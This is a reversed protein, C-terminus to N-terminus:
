VFHLAVLPWVAGCPNTTVHKRDKHALQIEPRAVYVM